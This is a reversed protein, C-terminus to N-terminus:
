FLQINRHCVFHVYKFHRHLLVYNSGTQFAKWILSSHLKGKQFINKGNQLYERKQIICILFAIVDYITGNFNCLIWNLIVRSIMCRIIFLARWVQCWCHVDFILLFFFPCRSDQQWLLVRPELRKRHFVLYEWKCGKLTPRLTKSPVRMTGM